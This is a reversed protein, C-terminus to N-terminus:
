LGAAAKIKGTLKIGLAKCNKPFTVGRKTATNYLFAHTDKDDPLPEIVTALTPLNKEGECDALHRPKAVEGPYNELYKYLAYAANDIAERYNEGQSFCGPLDPFEVGTFEGDVFFVAPYKM